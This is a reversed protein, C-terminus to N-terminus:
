WRAKLLWFMLFWLVIFVAGMTLVFTLTGPLPEDPPTEKSPPVM